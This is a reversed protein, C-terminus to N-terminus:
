RSSNSNCSDASNSGLNSSSLIAAHSTARSTGMRSSSTGMRSNSTGMVKNAGQTPAYEAPSVQCSTRTRDRRAAAWAIVVPPTTNIIKSPVPARKAPTRPQFTSDVPTVTTKIRTINSPINQIAATAATAMTTAPTTAM